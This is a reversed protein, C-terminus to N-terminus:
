DEPDMVLGMDALTHYALGLATVDCDTGAKGIEIAERLRAVLAEGAARDIVIKDM